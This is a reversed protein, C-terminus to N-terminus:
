PLSKHFILVFPDEKCILGMVEVNLALLICAVFVLQIFLFRYCYKLHIRYRCTKLIKGGSLAPKEKDKKEEGEEKPEETEM